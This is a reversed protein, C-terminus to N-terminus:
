TDSPEGIQETHNDENTPNHKRTSKFCQYGTYICFISGLGLIVIASIFIAFSPADPGGAFYAPVIEILGQILTFTVLAYIALKTDPNTQTSRKKKNM